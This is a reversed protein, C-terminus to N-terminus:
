RNIQIKGTRHYGEVLLLARRISFDEGGFHHRCGEFWLMAISANYPYRNMELFLLLLEIARINVTMVAKSYGSDILYKEIANRYIVLTDTPISEESSIIRRINEHVAEDIDNWYSGKGLSLYHFHRTYGFSYQGHEYFYYLMAPVKGNLQSKGWRGNHIDDKYFQIVVRYTLASVTTLGKNQLYALFRACNHKYGRITDQAITGELSKLFNNLEYKLGESLVSYSILHRTDHTKNIEGNQYIDNLRLLAMRYFSQQQNSLGEKISDFWQDAVEMTYTINEGLLHQLLRNFCVKNVSILTHCYHNTELYEMVQKIAQNYKNM